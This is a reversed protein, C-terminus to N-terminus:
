RQQATAQAKRNSQTARAALLTWKQQLRKHQESRKRGRVNREDEFNREILCGRGDQARYMLEVDGGCANLRLYTMALEAAARTGAIGESKEYLAQLKANGPNERVQWVNRARYVPVRKKVTADYVWKPDCEDRPAKPHQGCKGEHVHKAGRTENDMQVILSVAESPTRSVDAIAEAVITMRERRQEVTETDGHWAKLGMILELVLWTFEKM